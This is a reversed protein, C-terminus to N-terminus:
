MLVSAVVNVILVMGPSGRLCKRMAAFKAGDRGGTNRTSSGPGGTSRVPVM